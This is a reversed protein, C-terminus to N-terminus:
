YARMVSVRATTEIWPHDAVTAGSVALNEFLASAWDFIARAMLYITPFIGFDNMDPFLEGGITLLM